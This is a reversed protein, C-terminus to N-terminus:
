QINAIFCKYDILCPWQHEVICGANSMCQMSRTTCKPDYTYGQVETARVAQLFREFAESIQPTIEVHEGASILLSM